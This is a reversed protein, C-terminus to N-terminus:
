KRKGAPRGNTELRFNEPVQFTVYTPGARGGGSAFLGKPTQLEPFRGFSSLHFSAAGVAIEAGGPPAPALAYEIDLTRKQKAPWGSDFPIRFINRSEES